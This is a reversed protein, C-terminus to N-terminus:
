KKIYRLYFSPLFLLGGIGLFVWATEMWEQVCAGLGWILFIISVLLVAEIKSYPYKM